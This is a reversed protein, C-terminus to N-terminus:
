APSFRKNKNKFTGKSYLVTNLSNEPNSARFVYGEKKIAALIEDKTLAKKSTVKVVVDKLTMANRKARRKAVKKRAGSVSKPRGKKGSSIRPSGVASSDGGLVADIEAVRAILQAREEILAGRLSKYQELTDQKM